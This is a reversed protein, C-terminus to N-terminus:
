LSKVIKYSPTNERLKYAYDIDYNPYKLFDDWTVVYIYNDRINYQISFYQSYVISMIIIM